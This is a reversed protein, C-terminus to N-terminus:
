GHRCRVSASNSPPLTDAIRATAVTVPVISNALREARHEALLAEFTARVSKAETLTSGPADDGEGAAVRGGQGGMGAQVRVNQRIWERCAAEDLRGDPQELMGRRLYASITSRSLDM